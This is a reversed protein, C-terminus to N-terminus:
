DDYLYAKKIVFNGKRMLGGGSDTYVYPTRSGKSFLDKTVIDELDKVQGNEIYLQVGMAKAKENAFRTVVEKINPHPNVSYVRECFLQPKGNNDSMMRMVSRAILNDNDDRVQVIKVSPDAIYSLLGRSYPGGQYSQCSPVPEEGIRVYTGADIADTVFLRKKSVQQDGSIDSKASDLMNRMREIDSLFEPHISQFADRMVKFVVKFPVNKKEGTQLQGKQLESVSIRKLALLYQLAENLKLEPAVAERLEKTEEQLSLYEEEEETSLPYNEETSKVAAAKRKALERQRATKDAFTSILSKYEVELEVASKETLHSTVHEDAVAQEVVERVGFHIAQIDYSLMEEFDAKEEREWMEYQGMEIGTPLVGDNKLKGIFDHKQNQDYPGMRWAHYQGSLIAQAAQKFVPEMEQHEKVISDGYTMLPQVIAPDFEEVSDDDIDLMQSLKTMATHSLKDYLVDIDDDCDDRFSLDDFNHLAAFQLLEIVMKSKQKPLSLVKDQVEVALSSSNLLGMAVEIRKLDPAYVNEPKLQEGFRERQSIAIRSLDNKYIEYYAKSQLIESVEIFYDRTLLDREKVSSLLDMEDIQETVVSSLQPELYGVGLQEGSFLLYRLNNEVLLDYKKDGVIEQVLPRSSFGGVRVKLLGPSLEVFSELKDEIYQNLQDGFVDYVKGKLVVSPDEQCAQHIFDKLFQLRDKYRNLTTEDIQEYGKERHERLEARRRHLKELTEETNKAAQLASVLGEIDRELTKESRIWISKKNAKSEIDEQYKRYMSAALHEHNTQSLSDLLARLERDSFYEAINTLGNFLEGLDILGINGLVFTTFEKPKLIGVVMELQYSRDLCAILLLPSDLLTDHLLEIYENRMPSGYLSIILEVDPSEVLRSRILNDIEENTFINKSLKCGQGYLLGQVNNTFYKKCAIKLETRLEKQKHEDDIQTGIHYNIQYYEEIGFVEEAYLKIATEISFVNNELAYRLNRSWLVPAYKTIAESLKLRNSDSFLTLIDDAFDILKYVSRDCYEGSEALSSCMEAVIHDEIEPKNERNAIDLLVKCDALMPSTLPSSGLSSRLRKYLGVIEDTEYGLESVCELAPINENIAETIFNEPYKFNAKYSVYSDFIAHATKSYAGAIINERALAKERPKIESFDVYAGSDFTSPYQENIERELETVAKQEDVSLMQYKLSFFDDRQFLVDFQKQTVLGVELLDELYPYILFKEYQNYFKMLQGLGYPLDLNAGLRRNREDMFSIATRLFQDVDESSAYVHKLVNKDVVKGGLEEKEVTVISINEFPMIMLLSEKTAEKVYKEKYESQQEPELDLWCIHFTKMYRGSELLEAIFTGVRALDLGEVTQVIEVVEEDTLQDHMMFEELYDNVETPRMMQYHELFYHRVIDQESEGLADLRLSGAETGKLVSEATVLQLGFKEPKM